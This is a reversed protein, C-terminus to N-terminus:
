DGDRGEHIGTAPTDTEHHGHAPHTESAQERPTRDATMQEYRVLQESSLVGALQVRFDADHMKQTAALRTADAKGGESGAEEVDKLAQAQAKEFVPRLRAQQSASLSLPKVFRELPPPGPRFLGASASTQPEAALAATAALMSLGLMLIKM